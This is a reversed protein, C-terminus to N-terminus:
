NEKPIVRHEPQLTAKLSEFIWLSNLMSNGCYSDLVQAHILLYQANPEFPATSGKFGLM